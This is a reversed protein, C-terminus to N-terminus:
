DTGQGRIFHAMLLAMAPYAPLIYPILKCTSLSFLVIVAAVWIVLFLVGEGLGGDGRPLRIANVANRLSKTLAPLFFATWLLM